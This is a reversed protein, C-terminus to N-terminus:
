PAIRTQHALRPTTQDARQLLWELAAFDLPKTLHHDFGAERARTKDDAQGWGTLAVLMAGRSWEEARVAQAVEYGNLKPMGIDLIIVDPQVQRAISLASMGDFATMVEHGMSQLVLALSSAADSNDDAVLIRQGRVRSSLELVSGDGHAVASAQPDHVPLRIVFESGRGVGESFVQVRGGHMETLRQVLTLGIGLGGDSRELSGQVQTFMEFIRSKMDPPIGIGDDRVRIVAENGVQDAVLEINGGPPTYKASNTLLNGLVQTLRTFDGHVHVPRSPIAVTLHHDREDMLPRSAEVASDIVRSLELVQRRLVVKGRDLRSLDMLDDILHVLHELQREIMEQTRARLQHDGARARMLELGNRIPALPNRLEHALIALFEDKRRDAERLRQEARKRESIDTMTIICGLTTGSKDQVPGASLLLTVREAGPGSMFCEVGRIAAGRLAGGFDFPGHDRQLRFVESFPKRLPNTGCLRYATHSARLVRWKTDCVVIADIAQDLISRGLAEATAMVAHRKRETLDTLLLCLGAHDFNVVADVSVEVERGDASRLTLECQALEHRLLAGVLENEGASVAAQFHTGLLAAREIRLMAALRENAYLVTGDAALTVAGQRM